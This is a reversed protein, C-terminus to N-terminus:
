AAAMETTVNDYIKQLDERVGPRLLYQSGVYAVKKARREFLRTGGIVRDVFANMNQFPADFHASKDDLTLTKIHPQMAEKIRSTDYAKRKRLFHSRLADTEADHSELWIGNLMRVVEQDETTMSTWARKGMSAAAPTDPLELIDHCFRVFMDDGRDMIDSYPFIQLSDRGFVQALAQWAVSYDLDNSLGDKNWRPLYERPNAGGALAWYFEPLSLTGGMFIGQNWISGLRDSWRRCNYVVRVDSAGILERLQQLKELPLMSLHEGYILVTNHGEANLKEFAAALPQVKNRMLAAFVTLPTFEPYCIGRELLEPQAEKLCRQLYTSATKM